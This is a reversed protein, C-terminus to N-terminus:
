PLSDVIRTTEVAVTTVKKILDIIYTPDDHEDCWDNPDNVIGSDKDTRVQYRERIWDLATRSGLLYREADEPIGVITVQPNYILATHDTKSKWKMKEVRWTERDQPDADKKIQVDLPYPAASEYDAHLSMLQRGALRFQEFEDLTKPTPIRPLVKKLDAAYKTRYTPSHLLGYVFEFIDDKTIKDSGLSKRYLKLIDDTINDIRRYGWEDVEGGSTSIDLTGEEPEVKEYTYRHFFQGSGSGWFALDPIMRTALCSFPKDSGTGVVYFGLNSHNSTPFIAAIEGRRHNLMSDFYVHEIDFPRYAGLRIGSDDLNARRARALHQKLSASWKIRSTDSAGPTAALFRTVAAEDRKTISHSDCYNEFPTILSNYSSVLQTVSGKLTAASYNYVWADRTSELGRSFSKFVVVQGPKPKKEGIPPYIAYNDDRQNIWDGHKNPTISEWEVAELDDSDLIRLKDDRSLYDGIDRYYITCPSTTTPDKVGIFIAVTNRSGGGFIKGGEKRSLEGATRQNGRLNYVYINSYDAALTLRM